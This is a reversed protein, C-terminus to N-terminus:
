LDALKEFLERHEEMFKRALELRRQKAEEESMENAENIDKDSM